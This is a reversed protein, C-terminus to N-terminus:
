MCQQTHDAYYPPIGAAYNLHEMGALDEKGYAAKVAIQESTM